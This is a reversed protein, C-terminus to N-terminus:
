RARRGAWFRGALPRCCRRRVSARRCCWRRTLRVSSCCPNPSSQSSSPPDTSYARPGHPLAPLHAVEALDLYGLSAMNGVLIEAESMVAPPPEFGMVMMGIPCNKHDQDSAYILRKEGERWYACASALEHEARAVGAPAANMRSIGIPTHELELLTALERADSQWTM